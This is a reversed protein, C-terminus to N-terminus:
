LVECTILTDEEDTLDLAERAIFKIAGHVPTGGVKKVTGDGSSVLEDEAVIVEDAALLVNVKDGPKFIEYQVLAGDAYTVEVGNGQLEDEVAVAVSKIRGGASAHKILLGDAQRAVLMGPKIAESAKAVAEERWGSFRVPITTKM